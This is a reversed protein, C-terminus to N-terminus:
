TLQQAKARNRTESTCTEKAQAHTDHTIPKSIRRRVDSVARSYGRSAVIAASGPMGDGYRRVPGTPQGGFSRRRHRHRPRGARDKRRQSRRRRSYHRWCPGAPAGSGAAASRRVERPERGHAPSAALVLLLGVPARHPAFTLGLSDDREERRPGRFATSESLRDPPGSPRVTKPLRRRPKAAGLSTRGAPSTSARTAAHGKEGTSRARSPLPPPPCHVVRLTHTSSRRGCADRQHSARPGRAQQDRQYPGRRPTTGAAGLSSKPVVTAGCSRRVMAYRRLVSVPDPPLLWALPEAVAAAAM